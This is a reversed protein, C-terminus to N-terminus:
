QLVPVVSIETEPLNILLLTNKEHVFAARYGNGPVGYAVCKLDSPVSHFRLRLFETGLGSASCMKKLTVKNRLDLMKKGSIKMELCDWFVKDISSSNARLTAMKRHLKASYSSKLLINYAIRPDKELTLLDISDEKSLNKMKWTLNLRTCTDLNGWSKMLSQPIYLAKVANQASSVISKDPNWFPSSLELFINRRSQSIRRFVAPSPKQSAAVLDLYDSFSSIQTKEIGKLIAITKLFKLESAIVASPKEINKILKVVGPSLVRVIFNSWENIENERIRSHLKLVTETIRPDPFNGLINIITVLDADSDKDLLNLLYDKFLPSPVQQAFNLIISSLGPQKSATDLLAPIISDDRTSIFNQLIKSRVANNSNKFLEIQIRISNSSNSGSLITILSNYDIIRNRYAQEILPLGKGGTHVSGAILGLFKKQYWTLVPQKLFKELLTLNKSYFKTGTFDSLVKDYFYERALVFLYLFLSDSIEGNLLQIATIKENKNGSIIIKELHSNLETTKPLLGIVSLKELVSGTRLIKLLPEKTKESPLKAVAKVAAARVHKSYDSLRAIIPITVQEGGIIALTEIIKIRVADRSDTLLKILPNVANSIRHQGIIDIVTVRFELNEHKLLGVFYNHDDSNGISALQRLLISKKKFDHESAIYQRLISSAIEEKHLIAKNLAARAVDPNISYILPLVLSRVEDWDFDVSLRIGELNDQWSESGLLRTLTLLKIKHFKKDFYSSSKTQSLLLKNSFETNYYISSQGMFVFILLPIM